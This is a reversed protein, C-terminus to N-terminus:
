NFFSEWLIPMLGGKYQKLDITADEKAFLTKVMKGEQEYYYTRRAKCFSIPFGLEKMERLYVKLMSRSMHTKGAFEDLNGTAKRRILHDMFQMKEFYRLLSM